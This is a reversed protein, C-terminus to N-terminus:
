NISTELQIASTILRTPLKLVLECMASGIFAGEKDDEMENGMVKM